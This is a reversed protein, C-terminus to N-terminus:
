GLDCLLGSFPQLAYNFIIIIFVSRACTSRVRKTFKENRFSCDFLQKYSNYHEPLHPFKGRYNPNCASVAM